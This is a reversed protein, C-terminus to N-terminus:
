ATKYYVTVANDGVPETTVVRVIQGPEVGAVSANKKIDELKLM